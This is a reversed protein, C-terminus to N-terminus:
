LDYENVIQKLQTRNRIYIINKKNNKQYIFLIVLAIIFAAFIILLTM